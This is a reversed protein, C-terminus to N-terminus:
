QQFTETIGCLIHETKKRNVIYAGNGKKSFHQIYFLSFPPTEKKCFSTIDSSKEKNRTFFYVTLTTLQFLRDTKERATCFLVSIFFRITDDKV